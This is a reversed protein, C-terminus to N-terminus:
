ISRTYILFNDIDKKKIMVKGRRPTIGDAQKLGEQFTGLVIGVNAENVELIKVRVFRVAEKFREAYSLPDYVKSHGIHGASQRWANWAITASNGNDRAHWTEHEYIVYWFRGSAALCRFFDASDNGPSSDVTINSAKLDGYYDLSGNVLFRLDYDFEGKRKEKQVVLHAHLGHEALFRSLRFEVYFGAWENQFKDPWKAAHMEQVATLGALRSGDLFTKSFRDLVEIHPNREKYGGLLYSAFHVSHISTLRNGNKDERSFQGLRQAQFLDNTAVHASSNNAKRKAYTAPDFDVFITNGAYHYVGVFRVTLRDTAARPMVGLWTNPIQIRKKYSEWPTGLYTVQKSLILQDKFRVVWVGAYNEWTSGPLTSLLIQTRQSPRLTTDVDKRLQGDPRIQDVVANGM